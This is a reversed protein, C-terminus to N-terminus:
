SPYQQNVPPQIALQVIRNQHTSNHIIFVESGMKKKKNMDKYNYATIDWLGLRSGVTDHTTRCSNDPPRYAVRCWAAHLFM